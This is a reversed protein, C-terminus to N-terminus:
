LEDFVVLKWPLERRARGINKARDHRRLRKSQQEIECERRVARVEELCVHWEGPVDDSAGHFADRLVRPLQRGLGHIGQRAYGTKSDVSGRAGRTSCRKDCEVDSAQIWEIDGLSQAAGADFRPCSTVARCERVPEQVEGWGGGAAEAEVDVVCWVVHIARALGHRRDRPGSLSTALRGEVNSPVVRLSTSPDCTMRAAAPRVTTAHRGARFGDIGESYEM